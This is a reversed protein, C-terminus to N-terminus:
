DDIPALSMGNSQMEAISSGVGPHFTYWRTDGNAYDVGYMWEVGGPVDRFVRTKLNFPVRNEQFIPTSTTM